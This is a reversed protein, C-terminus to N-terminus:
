DAYVHIAETKPQPDTKHPDRYAPFFSTKHGGSLRTYLDADLIAGCLWADSTRNSWGQKFRSLGDDADAQLGAGAGLNAVQVGRSKLESLAFEMLGYSVGGQRYGAPSYGSLHHWARTEDHFWFQMGLLEDETNRAQILLVGPLALQQAFAQRSFRAIGTIDHREALREYLDCWNQLEAVPQHCVSFQTQRSSRRANRRHHTSGFSDAKLDVLYHVKYPRAIPQCFQTLLDSDFGGIPDTVLTLSVAGADRLIPLDAALGAPNECAFLPYCGAADSLYTGIIPQLLVHGRCNPLWLPSGFEALSHAYETLGYSLIHETEPKHVEVLLARSM